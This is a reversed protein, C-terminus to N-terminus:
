ARSRHRARREEQRPEVTRDQGVGLSPRTAPVDDPVPAGMPNAEVGTPADETPEHTGDPPFDFPEQGFLQDEDPPLDVVDEPPDMGALVDPMDEWSESYEPDDM